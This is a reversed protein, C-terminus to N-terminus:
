FKVRFGGSVAHETFGGNFRGDYDIFVSTSADINGVIGAGLLAADRGYNAGTVTFPTQPAFVFAATISRNPNAFEHQWAGRLEPVVTGSGMPLTTSARIGLTSSFSNANAANVILAAGGGATETFADTHAHVYGLGLYPTVTMSQVQAIYGGEGHVSYSQGGFSGNAPGFLFINRTTQYDNWGASAVGTAYWPDARWGGYIAGQYSNLATNGTGDTFNVSDHGYNFAAGIVADNGVRWDVGAIIGARTSDFPSNGITASANGFVGYGRAWAGTQLSDFNGLLGGQAVQGDALGASAFQGGSPAAGLLLHNEVDFIFIDPTELALTLNVTANQGSLSDFAQKQRGLTLTGILTLM